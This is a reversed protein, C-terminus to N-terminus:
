KTEKWFSDYMDWLCFGMALVALSIKEQGELRQGTLGGLRECVIWAAIIIAPRM